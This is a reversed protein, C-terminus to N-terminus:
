YTVKCSWHTPKKKQSIKGQVARESPFVSYEFMQSKKVLIIVKQKQISLHYQSKQKGLVASECPFREGFVWILPTQTHTHTNLQTVTHVYIYIHINM